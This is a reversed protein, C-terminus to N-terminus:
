RGCTDLRRWRVFIFEPIEMDGIISVGRVPGYEPLSRRGKAGYRYELVVIEPLRDSTSFGFGHNARKPGLACGYVLTCVLCAAVLRLLTVSLKPVKM